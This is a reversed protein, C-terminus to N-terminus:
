ERPNKAKNLKLFQKWRIKFDYINLYIIICLYIPLIIIFLFDLWEFVIGMGILTGIVGFVENNIRKVTTIKSRTNKHFDLALKRNLLLDIYRM